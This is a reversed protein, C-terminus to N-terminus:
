VLCRSKRFFILIDDVASDNWILVTHKPVLSVTRFLAVNGGVKNVGCLSESTFVGPVAKVSHDKLVAISVFPEFCRSIRDCVLRIFVEFPLSVLENVKDGIRLVLVAIEVCKESYLVRFLAPCIQELTMFQVARSVEDFGGASIVFCRSLSLKKINGYFVGLADIITEDHLIGLTNRSM